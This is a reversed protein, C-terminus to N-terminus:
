AHIRHIYGLCITWSHFSPVSSAMESNGKKPLWKSNSKKELGFSRFEGSIIIMQVRALRSRFARLKWSIGQMQVYWNTSAAPILKKSAWGFDLHVSNHLFQICEAGTRGPELHVYNGSCIRENPESFFTIRFPELSFTNSM